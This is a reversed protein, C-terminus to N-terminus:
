LSQPNYSLGLYTFIGEWFSEESSDTLLDTDESPQDRCYDPPNEFNCVYFPDDLPYLM